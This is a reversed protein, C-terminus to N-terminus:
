RTVPAIRLRLPQAYLHKAALRDIRARDDNALAPRAKVGSFVDAHPAVMRQKSKGIALHRKRHLAGVVALGHADHGLGSRFPDPDSSGQRRCPKENAADVLIFNMSSARISTLPPLPPSPQAENRRSFNMGFPPGSPPSPPRPPLTIATASRLM